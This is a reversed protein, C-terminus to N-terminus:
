LNFCFLLLHVQMQINRQRHPSLFFVNTSLKFRNPKRDIQNINDYIRLHPQNILGFSKYDILINMKRKEETIKVLLVLEFLELASQLGIKIPSDHKSLQTTKDLKTRANEVDESLTM